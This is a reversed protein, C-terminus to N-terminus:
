DALNELAASVHGCVSLIQTWGFGGCEDLEELCQVGGILWGRFICRM